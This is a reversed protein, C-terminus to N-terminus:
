GAAVFGGAVLGEAEEELGPERGEGVLEGVVVGLLEPLAEEVAEPVGVLGERLGVEGVAEGGEEGGESGEREGELVEGGEEEGHAALPGGDVGEAEVLEVEEYAPENGGEEREEFLIGPIQLERASVDVNQVHAGEGGLVLKLTIANIVM